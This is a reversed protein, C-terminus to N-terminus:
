TLPWAMATSPPNDLVCGKARMRRYFRSSAILPKGAKPAVAAHLAWGVTGRELIHGAGGCHLLHFVPAGCARARQLRSRIRLVVQEGTIRRGLCCHLNRKPVDITVLAAAM